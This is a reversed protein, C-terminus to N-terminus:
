QMGGNTTVVCLDPCGLAIHTAYSLDFIRHAPDYFPGRDIVPVTVTRGQYSLTVLTGCPLTRHAVGLITPTFTEGCATRNGFFGPGYWSAIVTESATTSTVVITTAVSSPDHRPESPQVPSSSRVARWRNLEESEAETADVASGNDDQRNGSTTRAPDRIPAPEERVTDSSLSLASSAFAVRDLAVGLFVGILILVLAWTLM